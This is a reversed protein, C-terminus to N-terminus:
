DPTPREVHDIVLVDVPGRSSEVKLGLQEQLATTLAPGDGAPPPEGGPKFPGDSVMRDPTYTLDIDYAGALGTRDVVIRQMFNSLSAALQSIQIAGGTMRGPGIRFGCPPREGPGAPPPGGRLRGMLAQCDVDSAHLGPGLRGDGRAVVLAYIPMDRKELHAALKFRDGLLSRMMLQYPGVVGPPTPQPNGEAKAAIDFRDSEKWDPAGVVQFDQVGYSFRVLMSLPVNVATVRGGPQLQLAVRPEKSESPKVSAVEFVPLANSAAPAAQARLRPANAVGIAVPGVIAASAIISLGARKALSLADAGRHNMITEIRRKLDAGTVGAVCVLPSEISFRCTRLISEAYVEPESGRHLVEEDCAREREEVLRAGIWWVLPHFWFAAQVGMHAAAVLNDYRGVHSLEHALIAEIQSDDLRASIARPWLLRPTFVGFVGPEIAADSALVKLPRRVRRAGELRRLIAIERGETMVPSREALRALNRWQVLWRTLIVLSGIVWVVLLATPFVAGSVSGPPEALIPVRMAAPGVTRDIPQVVSQFLYVVQGTTAPLLRHGLARGLAILAEFPLLFKLSAAVWLGYRVHARNNRLTLTLLACVAAFATSQLLHNLIENTM